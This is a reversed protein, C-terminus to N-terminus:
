SAERKCKFIPRPGHDRSMGLFEVNGEGWGVELVDEYTSRKDPVHGELWFAGGPRVLERMWYGYGVQRDVALALV